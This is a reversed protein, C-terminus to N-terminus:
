RLWGRVRVAVNILFPAVLLAGLLWPEAALLARRLRGQQDGSLTSSLQQRSKM